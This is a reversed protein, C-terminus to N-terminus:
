GEATHNGGVDLQKSAVDQEILGHEGALRDAGFRTRSELGIRPREHVAALCHGADSRGSGAGFESAGRLQNAIGM